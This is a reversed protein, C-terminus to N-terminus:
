QSVAQFTHIDFIKSVITKRDVTRMVLHRKSFRGRLVVQVYQNKIHSVLPKTKYIYVHKFKATYLTIRCLNFIQLTSVFTYFRPTVHILFIPDTYKLASTGSLSIFSSTSCDYSITTVEKDFFSFSAKREIYTSSLGNRRTLPFSLGSNSHKRSHQQNLYIDPIRRCALQIDQFLDYCEQRFTRELLCRKRRCKDMTWQRATEGFYKRRNTIEEPFVYQLSMFLYRHFWTPISIHLRYRWDSENNKCIGNKSWIYPYNGNGYKGKFLQM